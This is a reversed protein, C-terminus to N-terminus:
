GHLAAGYTLLLSGDVDASVHFQNADYNGIMTLNSSHTGDTVHLTGGTGEANSHYEVSSNAGFFMTVFDIVDDDNLGAITGVVHDPAGLEISASADVDIVISNTASGELHLAAHGGLHVSGSGLLAGGFVVQSDFASILGSNDVDSMIILGGSGTSSLTGTSVVVNSGTDIVLAHVGNALISGGNILTLSGAGLQGAGAITNDINTLSVSALTGAVVNSASDSLTLSGGGTLTLGHQIIQLLTTDGSGLLAITGTNDLTGSMPLLAGDGITITAANVFAPEVNFAFNAATLNAAHVDRFTISQGDALDLRANGAADDTLHALVDAFGGFNSYGILDVTDATIDFAHVADAGIPQSFVFTDAGASGTLTDDGSWAFIPTGPAYVEVNDSIFQVSQNGDADTLSVAIELVIAGTYDAPSVVNLSSPDSTLVTWSGDANRSGSSLNWDEPLGKVTLTVDIGAPAAELGLNMLEGAVGAPKLNTKQTATNVHGASDSFAGQDIDLTYSSGNNTGAGKNVQFTYQNGAANFSGTGEIIQANPLGSVHLASSITSFNAHVNNTNFTITVTSPTANNGQQGDVVSTVLAQGADDTGNITVTVTQVDIAGNNDTSRVIYTLVLSQGLGLYDFAQSGSNFNWSLNHTDGTNAALAGGPVTFMALLAPNTSTLGTTTGSAVVSTVVSTVTDPSDVDTVTLTGSSALGANTETLAVAAKDTTVVQIDPADNTGTITITLTSSSTGGHGDSIAYTFQDTASQNKALANTDPDANNLVYSYSGNSGITVSGYIGTVSAGVNGVSGNVTTVTLTDSDADTDNTLVNGAANSDGPFTTNGPNVGAEIVTDGANTDPNAIPTANGVTVTATDTTNLAEYNGGTTGTISVTGSAAPTFSTSTGNTQGVLITATAGNSLSIVLNSSTVASAVHATITASNGTHVTVDDITVATSNITDNVFATATGTGVLLNEFNGGATGTITATLNSADLYPDEGNGSAIVLQGSTAGNAITINGQTTQITTVGQSANSLTATFVYSAGAGESVTSASLNM